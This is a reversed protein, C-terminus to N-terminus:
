LDEADPVPESLRDTTLQLQFIYNYLSGLIPDTLEYYGVALGVRNQDAEGLDDIRIVRGKVSLEEEEGPIELSLQMTSGASVPHDPEILVYCGSLSLDRIMGSQEQVQGPISYNFPMNVNFRSYRRLSSKEIRKPKSCVLVPQEDKRIDIVFVSTVYAEKHEGDLRRLTLEQSEQFFLPLNNSYPAQLIIYSEELDEVMTDSNKLLGQADIYELMIISGPAFAKQLLGEEGM